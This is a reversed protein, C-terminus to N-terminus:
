CSTLQNPGGQRDRGASVGPFARAWRVGVRGGRRSRGQSVRTGGMHGQRRLRRNRPLQSSLLCKVEPRAHRHRCTEAHPILVFRSVKLVRATSGLCGM